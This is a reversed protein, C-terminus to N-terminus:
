RQRRRTPDLDRLLDPIPIRRVIRAARTKARIVESAVLRAHEDLDITSDEWMRRRLKEAFKRVAEETAEIM